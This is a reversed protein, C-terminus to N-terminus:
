NLTLKTKSIQANDESALILYLYKSIISKTYIKKINEKDAWVQLLKKEGNSCIIEKENCALKGAVLAFLYSPKPFPDHWTASHMKNALNEEEILNGNSLLIPYDRKLAILKVTFVSMIDPRDISFTIKRFGEAECQTVM